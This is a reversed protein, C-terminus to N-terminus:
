VLALHLRAFMSPGDSVEKRGYALGDTCIVGAVGSATVQTVHYM